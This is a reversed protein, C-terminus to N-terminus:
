LSDFFSVLSEAYTGDNPCSATFLLYTEGGDASYGLKGLDIAYVNEYGEKLEDPVLGEVYILAERDALKKITEESLLSDPSVILDSAVLGNMASEDTIFYYISGAVVQAYVVMQDEYATYVQENGGFNIFTDLAFESTVKKKDAGVFDLYGDTFKVYDEDSIYLNISIGKSIAEKEFIVRGFLWSFFCILVFLIAITWILYYDKFYKWKKKADMDKFKQKEEALSEKFTKGDVM